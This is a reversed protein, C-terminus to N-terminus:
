MKSALRRTLSQAQKKEAESYKAGLSFASYLIDLSGGATKDSAECTAYYKLAQFENDTFKTTYGAAVTEAIAKCTEGFVQAEALSPMAVIVLALMTKNMVDEM